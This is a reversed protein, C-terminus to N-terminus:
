PASDSPKRRVHRGHSFELQTRRSAVAPKPGPPGRNLDPRGSWSLSIMPQGTADRGCPQKSETLSGCRQTTPWLTQAVGWPGPPGSAPVPTDIATAGVLGAVPDVSTSGDARRARPYASPARTASQTVM